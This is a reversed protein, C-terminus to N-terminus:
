ACSARTVSGLTLDPSTARTTASPGQPGSAVARAASSTLHRSRHFERWASGQWHREAGPSQQETCVRSLDRIPCSCLPSEPRRHGGLASGSGATGPLAADPRLYHPVGQCPGLRGLGCTHAGPHPSWRTVSMLPVQVGQPCCSSLAGVGGRRSSPQAAPRAPPGAPGGRWQLRRASVPARREAQPWQWRSLSQVPCESKESGHRLSGERHVVQRPSWQSM